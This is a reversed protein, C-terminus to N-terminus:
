LSGIVAVFCISAIQNENVEHKKFQGLTFSHNVSVLFFCRLDM